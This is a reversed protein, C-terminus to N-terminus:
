QSVARAGASHERGGSGATPFKSKLRGIPEEILYWSVIAFLVSIVTMVVFAHLGTGLIQPVYETVLWMLMLHYMFVGYSIKSLFRALGCGLLWGIPGRYGAFVGIVIVALAPESLVRYTHGDSYGAWLFYPSVIVAVSVALATYSQLATAIEGHRQLLYALVGFAIPDGCFVLFRWWGDIGLEDGGIQILILVYIRRLPLFLIAIPWILYFQELVNLSWLHGVVWPTVDQHSAFYINTMQLGHWWFSSRFGDMDFLTATAVLVVLAPLLRLARRIYFNVVNIQGGNEKASYLIHTILFGSVVFFLSVRLDETLPDDDYFHVYLVGVMALARVTM